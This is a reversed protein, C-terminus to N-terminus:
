RQWVNTVMVRKVFSEQLFFYAASLSEDFIIGLQRLGTQKLTNNGAFPHKVSRKFTLIMKKLTKLDREIVFPVFFFFCLFFNLFVHFLSDVLALISSRFM